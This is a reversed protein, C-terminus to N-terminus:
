FVVLISQWEDSGLTFAWPARLIKKVSGGKYIPELLVVFYSLFWLWAVRHNDRFSSPEIETAHPLICVRTNTVQVRHRGGTRYRDGTDHGIVHVRHRDGTKYKDSIDHGTVHVEHIFCRSDVIGWCRTALICKDRHLRLWMCGINICIFLSTSPLRGGIDGFNGWYAGYFSSLVGVLFGWLVWVCSLAGLRNHTKNAVDFM